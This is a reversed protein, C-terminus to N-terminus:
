DLQPRRARALNSVRVPQSRRQWLVRGLTRTLIVRWDSRAVRDAALRAQRRTEFLGYVTSGSGSLAAVSAGARTLAAKMAEIEPHQEGVVPEFDNVGTAEPSDHPGGTVDLNSAEVAARHGDLWGFAERSSVGFGPVLLVVYWEAADPLPEIVDGRGVGRARGGALFFPVDAGLSVAIDALVQRPLAVNWVEQLVLLAAAADASGGGLGAEAPIGKRLHIAVDRLPGTRGSAHWLLDAAQWVLNTADSQVAALGCDLTFPGTRPLCTLTDHLAVTQFITRLGHYGDPRTGFIRLHLNIKAHARVAIAEPISM